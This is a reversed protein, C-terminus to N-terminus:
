SMLIWIRQFIVLFGNYGKLVSIKLVGGINAIYRNQALLHNNSNLM